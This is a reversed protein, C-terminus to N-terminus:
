KICKLNECLTTSIFYKISVYLSQLYQIEGFLWNNWYRDGYNNQTIMLLWSLGTWNYIYVNLQAIPYKLLIIFYFLITLFQLIPDNDLSNIEYLRNWNSWLQYVRVNKSYWYIQVQVRINMRLDLNDPHFVSPALKRVPWALKLVCTLAIPSWSCNNFQLYQLSLLSVDIWALINLFSM